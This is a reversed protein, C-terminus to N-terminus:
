CSMCRRERLGLLDIGEWRGRVPAPPLAPTVVGEDGHGRM